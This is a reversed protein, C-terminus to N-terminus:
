VCKIQKVCSKRYAFHRNLVFELLEAERENRPAGLPPIENKGKESEKFYENKELWWMAAKINSPIEGFPIYNVENTVPNTLAYYGPKRGVIAKYISEVAKMTLNEKALSSLRRFTESKSMYKQRSNEPIIALEASTKYDNGVSLYFLFNHLKEATLEIKRGRNKPDNSESLEAIIKRYSSDGVHQEIFDNKTLKIESKKM